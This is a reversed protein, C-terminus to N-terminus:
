KEADSKNFDKDVVICFLYNANDSYNRIFKDTREYSNKIYEPASEDAGQNYYWNDYTRELLGNKLVYVDGGLIPMGSVFYDHAIKLADIKPYAIGNVGINELSYGGDIIKQEESRVM